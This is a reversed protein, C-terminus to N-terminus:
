RGYKAQLRHFLAFLFTAFLLECASTCVKKHEYNSNGSWSRKQQWGNSKWTQQNQHWGKSQGKSSGSAAPARESKDARDFESEAAFLVDSDVSRSAVNIDFGVQLAVVALAFSFLAIFSLGVENAM